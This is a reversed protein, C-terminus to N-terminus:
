FKVGCNKCKYTKGLSGAGFLGFLGVKAVKGAASLKILNTSGCSPCKPINASNHKRQYELSERYIKNQYEKTSHYERIEVASKDIMDSHGYFYKQRIVERYADVFKSGIHVEEGYRKLCEEQIEKEYKKELTNSDDDLITFNEISNGCDLCKNSIRFLYEDAVYGCKKCIVVKDM